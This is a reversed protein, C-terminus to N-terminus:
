APAGAAPHQADPCAPCIVQANRGYRRTLGQCRPCYGVEDPSCGLLRAAATRDVAPDIRELVRDM